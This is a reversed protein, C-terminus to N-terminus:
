TTPPTGRGPGVGSSVPVSRGLEVRKGGSSFFLQRRDDDCEDTM